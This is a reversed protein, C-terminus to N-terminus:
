KEIIKERHQNGWKELELLIFKCSEGHPTIEYSIAIPQTSLVKREILQNIELEKLEKSLMRPSINNLTNQLEIFRASKFHILAGLIPIKWKGSLLDLSDRIALLSRSCDQVDKLKEM